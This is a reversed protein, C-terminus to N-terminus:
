KKAKKKPAPAAPKKAVVQHVEGDKDVVGKALAKAAAALQAKMKEAVKKEDVGYAAAVDRIFGGKPKGVFAFEHDLLLGELVLGQLQEQSMKAVLKRLEATDKELDDSPERGLRTRVMGDNADRGLQEEALLLWAAKSLGKAEVKKVVEAILARALREGKEREEQRKKNEAQWDPQAPAPKVKPLLKEIDEKRALQQVGSAAPALTAELKDAKKGLQERISVQGKGEVWRKEDLDVYEGSKIAKKAEAATTTLKGDAEAKALTLKVYATKKEKFCGPDTCTDKKPVDAFLEPQNGTRKPCSSCAGAAPVLTADKLDWPAEALGLTYDRHLFDRAAEFSMTGRYDGELIKKTAEEQLAAPLRAVLVAHSAPLEGSLASTRVAEVLKCLQLREYVTRKSKAVKLAIEEVSYGHLEHLQRYGEAEEVPHVDERKSNEVIQIELVEKDSLERVMAPISELKALRAARWRREGFVLEFDEGLPRVLVPSLVGQARVSDALEDIGAFTKRPNSPSPQIREVPLMAIGAVLHQAAAATM